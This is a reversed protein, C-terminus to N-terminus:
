FLYATLPVEFTSTLVTPYKCRINPWSACLCAQRQVLLHPNRPAADMPSAHASSAGHDSTSARVFAYVPYENRRLGHVVCSTAYYILGASCYSNAPTFAFAFTVTASRFPWQALDYYFPKFPRSYMSYVARPSIWM